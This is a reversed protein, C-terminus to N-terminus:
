REFINVNATPVTPNRDNLAGKIFKVVSLKLHVTHNESLILTAQANVVIAWTFEPTDRADQKQRLAPSEISALNAARGPLM